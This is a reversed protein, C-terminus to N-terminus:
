NTKERIAYTKRGSSEFYTRMMLEGILGMMVSQIGVIVLLASLILLPRGGISEGMLKLVALYGLGIFGAGSILAGTFSFLRGPMMKFPKYAFSLMFALTILDLLVKITRKNGKYASEGYDRDKFKVEFEIMKPRYVSLYDPIFRHMEGYLRLNQILFKKYGKLGSGRDKMDVGSIATILRNAYGSKVQRAAKEDSWRDTRHANVFDYGQDLYDIVQLLSETPLELDANFTIVYDGKSNDFGAMYASSQGFNGMLNIGVIKSDKESYESIVNWTSDKSGDNVAIIEYDYTHNKMVEAIQDFMRNINKEENYCPLVISVLKRQKNESM